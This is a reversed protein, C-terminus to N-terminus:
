LTDFLFPILSAYGLSPIVKKPTVRRCGKWACRSAGRNDIRMLRIEKFPNGGRNLINECVKLVHLRKNSPVKEELKLELVNFFEERTFRFIIEDTDQKETEESSDVEGFLSKWGRRRCLSVLESVTKEDLGTSKLGHALKKMRTRKTKRTRRLRRLQPRPNLKKKLQVQDYTLTGAFLPINQGDNKNVLAIGINQSGYDISLTVTM